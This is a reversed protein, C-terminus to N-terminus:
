SSIYSIYSCRWAKLKAHLGLGSRQAAPTHSPGKWQANSTITAAKWNLSNNGAFEKNLNHQVFSRYGSRSQLQNNQPDVALKAMSLTICSDQLPPIDRNLVKTGRTNRGAQLIFGKHMAPNPQSILATKSYIHSQLMGRKFGPASYSGCCSMATLCCQPFACFSSTSLERRHLSKSHM